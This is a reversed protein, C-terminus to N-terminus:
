NKLYICKRLVTQTPDEFKVFYVGSSLQGGSMSSFNLQRTQRNLSLPNFTENYVTQGLLNFVRIHIPDNGPNLAFLVQGSTPNPYPHSLNFKPLQIQTDTESQIGLTVEHGMMLNLDTVQWGRYNISNDRVFELRVQLPPLGASDTVMLYDNRFQDWAQDTWFKEALVNGNTDQIAVKISDHDWEMEYRHHIRLTATEFGNYSIPISVLRTPVLSTDQNAYYHNDQTCLTDGHVAWTGSNESWMGQMNYNFSFTSLPSSIGVNITTDEEIHIKKYWPSAGSDLVTISWDGRLVGFDMNGLQGITTDAHWGNDLIIKPASTEIFSSDPIINLSLTRTVIPVLEADLTTIGSNNATVDFEQSYYGEASIIVHYSGEQVIRRYRGFEDTTRPALVGTDVSDIRVVAGEIPEGTTMRTVIGTIQAADEQYGISRDMLFYMCPQLRDATDEILASDPQLDATGCEVLYQFCGTQTYFWDHAKGNRSTSVHSTYSGVGNQKITLNAIRDGISKMIPFDPSKKGHGWNWSTFVEESLTGSRASHWIISFTFRESLALDRLARTEPESFPAPGKYYDYNAGYSSHDEVLFGEGFIWNFDFNRNIDVGDIDNGISPDFDFVGNPWPGEPSFDHKNKRYTYDLGDYVVTMGEPNATPVIWIELQQKLISAHIAQTAPPDLLDEMLKLVAEVGLIEEAHVQGVFLIRPEDERTHVNDSIVAAVIPLTDRKSYGITDVRFVDSYEPISQLSDLESLIEPYTHYRSDLGVQAWIVQAMFLALLISLKKM